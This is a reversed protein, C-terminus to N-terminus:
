YKIIKVSRGKLAKHVLSGARRLKPRAEKIRHESKRDPSPTRWDEAQLRVCRGLVVQCTTPSETRLRAPQQDPGGAYLGEQDVSADLGISEARGRFKRRHGATLRM